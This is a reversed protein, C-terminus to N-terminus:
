ALEPAAFHPYDSGKAVQRKLTQEDTGTLISFGAPHDRRSIM